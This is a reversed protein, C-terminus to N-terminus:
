SDVRCGFGNSVLQVCFEGRVHSKPARALAGAPEDLVNTSLTAQRRRSPAAHTDFIQRGKVPAAASEVLAPGFVVDVLVDIVFLVQGCRTAALRFVAKRGRLRSGSVYTRLM